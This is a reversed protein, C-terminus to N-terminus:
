LMCRLEVVSSAVSHETALKDYRGIQSSVLLDCSVSCLIDYCHSLCVYMTGIHLITM